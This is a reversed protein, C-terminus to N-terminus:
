IYLKLIHLISHLSFLVTKLQVTVETFMKRTHKYINKLINQLMAYRLYSKIMGSSMTQLSIWTNEDDM